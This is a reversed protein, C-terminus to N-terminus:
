VFEGNMNSKMMYRVADEFLVRSALWVFDPDYGVVDCIRRVLHDENWDQKGNLFLEASYLVNGEVYDLEDKLYNVELNQM